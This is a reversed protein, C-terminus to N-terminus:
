GGREEKREHSRVLGGGGGKWKIDEDDDLPLFPGGKREFCKEGRQWIWWPKICKYLIGPSLLSPPLLPLLLSSPLSSLSSSPSLDLEAWIALSGFTQFNVTSLQSVSLQSLFCSQHLAALAVSPSLPVGTVRIGPGPKRDSKYWGLVPNSEGKFM